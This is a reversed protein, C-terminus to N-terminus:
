VRVLEWVQNKNVWGGFGWGNVATGDATGGGYLDICTGAAVNAIRYATKQPNPFFQWHQDTAYTSKNGIIPTHDASGGDKLTLYTRSNANQLWYADTSSAKNLIWLQAPVGVNDLDRKKYGQVSTGDDSNGGNITLVTGTGTNKIIYVGLEIKEASM